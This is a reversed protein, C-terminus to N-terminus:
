DHSRAKKVILPISGHTRYTPAALTYALSMQVLEARYEKLAELTVEGYRFQRFFNGTGVRLELVRKGSLLQAIATNVTSIATQIESETM